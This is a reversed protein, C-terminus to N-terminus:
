LATAASAFAKTLADEADALIKQLRITVPDTSKAEATAANVDAVIPGLAEAFAFILPLYKM